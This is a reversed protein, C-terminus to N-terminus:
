WLIKRVRGGVAQSPICTRNQREEGPRRLPSTGWGGGNEQRLRRLVLRYRVQFTSSRGGHSLRPCHNGGQADQTLPPSPLSTFVCIAPHVEQTEASDTSRPHPQSNADRVFEWPGYKPVPVFPFLDNTRVERAGARAM